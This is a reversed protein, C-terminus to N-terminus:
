QLIEFYLEGVPSRHLYPCPEGVVFQTVWVHIDLDAVKHYMKVGHPHECQKLLYYHVTDSAVIHRTHNLFVYFKFDVSPLM